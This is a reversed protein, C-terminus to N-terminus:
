IGGAEDPDTIEPEVYIEVDGTNNTEGSNDEEILPLRDKINYVDNVPVPDINIRTDLFAYLEQGKEDEPYDNVYQVSLSYAYEYRGLAEYCWIQMYKLQQMYKIDGLAIGQEAYSLAGNYDGLIIYYTAYKYALYSSMGYRQSYIDCYAKMNEYDKQNEYCVAVYLSIESYGRNVAMILTDLPTIYDGTAYRALADTLSIMFNVRDEDYDDSTYDKTIQTYIQNAIVYDEIRMYSDAMYMCIDVNVKDSFWQDENLAKQFKVLADVYNGQNYLAIGEERLEKKDTFIHKGGVLAFVVIFCIFIVNISMSANRYAKTKKSRHRSNKNESM